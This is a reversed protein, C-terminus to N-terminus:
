AADKLKFTKVVVMKEVEKVDLDYAGDMWDIVEPEGHKGGGYWYTWGVWGGDSLQRAVSKSEYHRSWECPLNTDEGSGRFERKYDQLAYDENLDDFCEDVNESTLEPCKKDPNTALFDLIIHRKIRQEPTM